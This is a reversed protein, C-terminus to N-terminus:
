RAQLRRLPAACFLTFIVAAICIMALPLVAFVAVVAQVVRRVANDLVALM